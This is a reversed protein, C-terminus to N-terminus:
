YHIKGRVDPWLRVGVRAAFHDDVLRAIDAGVHGEELHQVDDVLPEGQLAIHRDREVVVTTLADTPHATEHDVSDRVTGHLSGSCALKVHSAEPIAVRNIDLGPSGTGKRYDLIQGDITGREVPDNLCASEYSCRGPAGLIPIRN